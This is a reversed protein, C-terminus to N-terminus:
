LALNEFLKANEKSDLSDVKKYSKLLIAGKKQPIILATAM